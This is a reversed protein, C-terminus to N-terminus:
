AIIGDAPVGDHQAHNRVTIRLRRLDDGVKRGDISRHLDTVMRTLDAVQTELKRLRADQEANLLEGESLLLKVRRRMAPMDIGRPDIKRPTWEKHGCLMKETQGLRNLLAAALRDYADLQAQPWVEGRGDNAAEIGIVSANGTLGNWGGLGAHNARGAAIVTVTGDRDLMLQCLPGPLGTRGKVLLDTLQQSSWTKPTATHHAIVGKPDFRQDGRVKWGPTERVTLGADRAVDALWAARL